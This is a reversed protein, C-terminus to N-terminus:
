GQFSYCPTPRVRFEPELLALRNRTRDVWAVTGKKGRWQTPADAVVVRDGPAVNWFKVRDDWHVFYAGKTRQGTPLRGTTGQALRPVKHHVLHNFNTQRSTTRTSTEQYTYGVSKAAFPSGYVPRPKVKLAFAPATPRM